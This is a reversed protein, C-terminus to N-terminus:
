GRSGYTKLLTQCCDRQAASRVGVLRPNRVRTICTNICARYIEQALLPRRERGGGVEGGDVFTPRRVPGCRWRGVPVRRNWVINRMSGGYPSQAILDRPRGCCFPDTEISLFVLTGGDLRVVVWATPSRAERAENTQLAHLGDANIQRPAHTAWVYGRTVNATTAQGMASFGSARSHRVAVGADASVRVTVGLKDLKDRHEVQSPPLPRILELLRSRRASWQCAQVPKSAHPQCSASV